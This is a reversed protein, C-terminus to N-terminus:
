KTCSVLKSRPFRISTKSSILNDLNSNSFRVEAAKTKSDWVHISEIEEVKDQLVPTKKDLYSTMFTKKKLFAYVTTVQPYTSATCKSDLLVVRELHLFHHNIWTKTSSHVDSFCLSLSLSLKLSSISSPKNVKHAKL